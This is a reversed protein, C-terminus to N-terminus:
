REIWKISDYHDASIENVVALINAITYDLNMDWFKSELAGNRYYLSDTGQFCTDLSLANENVLEKVTRKLPKGTVKHTTRYNYKTSHTFELFYVRGDKGLINYDGTCVRYNGVDSLANVRDGKFFNCGRKELYLTM